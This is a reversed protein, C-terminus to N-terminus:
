AILYYYSFSSVQSQYAEKAERLDLKLENNEELKQGYLQLLVEYRQALSEGEIGAELQISSLRGEVKASQESLEALLREHKENLRAM